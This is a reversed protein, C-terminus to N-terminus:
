ADVPTLVFMWANHKFAHTIWVMAFPELWRSAEIGGLDSTRWGFQDLLGAVTEKAAADNGAIFM